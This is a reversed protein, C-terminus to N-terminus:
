PAPKSTSSGPGSPPGLFPPPVVVYKPDNPSLFVEILMGPRFVLSPDLVGINLFSRARYSSGERPRVELALEVFAGSSGHGRDHVELILAQAPVGREVIKKNARLLLGGWVLAALFGVAVLFMVGYTLTRGQAVTMHDQLFTFLLVIAIVGVWIMASTRMGIM